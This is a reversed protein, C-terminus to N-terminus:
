IADGRAPLKELPLVHARHRKPQPLPLALLLEEVQPQSQAPHQARRRTRRFESVVAPLVPVPFHENMLVVLTLWLPFHLIGCNSRRPGTLIRLAKGFLKAVYALGSDTMRDRERLAPTVSCRMDVSAPEKAPVFAREM